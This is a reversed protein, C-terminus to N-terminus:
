LDNQLMTRFVEANVRETPSLQSEPIANLQALLQQWHAVRRQQSGPDVRPLYDSPKAEAQSDQFYGFEEADWSSFGNYLAQLRADAPGQAADAHAPGAAFAMISAWLAVTLVRKM